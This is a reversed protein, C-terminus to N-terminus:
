YLFMADGYSYFRYEAEVAAGYAALVQERGGFASVLMLLTSKPLHFNTIMADVRGFKYPPMIMINTSGDHPRIKGATAFCHELVRVVTTGVAIIRGRSRRTEEIQESAEASISYREEHMPHELPNDVKVPRFTGVGVHLTVYSLEVGASRLRDLLPATFHLGATPAAVAGPVRAYVTQYADRDSETDNREIYHPLPIHGYQAMVTELDPGGPTDNHMGVLRAGGPLTELVILRLPPSANEVQLVTGPLARRGPNVLAKWAGGATKELLFVEVRVGNAKRTFLRAPIVRTDNFVLRDGPRLLSAIDRFIFHSCVGNRRDMALLRCGDRPEAPEMAIREPPLDYDFDNTRLM